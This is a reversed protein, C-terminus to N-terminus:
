TQRIRNLQKSNKEKQLTLNPTFKKQQHQDVLPQSTFISRLYSSLRM